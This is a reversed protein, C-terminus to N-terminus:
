RARPGALLDTARPTQQYRVHQGSRTRTILGTRHLIGLHYSVTSTALFHRESLEATTRATHLDSLLRARTAGLLAHVTPGPRTEPGPRCPYAFMPQRVAPGPISDIVMRLDTTFVSPTLVLGTSGSIRGQFRSVLTLQDDNWLMRPHLTALMGSLGHRAITQARHTIDDEMRTRLVAWQPALAADWLRHLEAAMREAFDREGRELADRLVVPVVRGALREASVGQAMVQLEWRLRASGTTAVAHLEEQLGTEPAQPQPTLFDPVYDWAGGFLSGLLILKRDRVTERVTDLWGGGSPRQNDRLLRLAGIVTNLPSIAFRANALVARDMDLHLM